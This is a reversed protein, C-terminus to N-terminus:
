VQEFAAAEVMLKGIKDADAIENSMLLVLKTLFLMQKDDPTADLASALADYVQELDHTNIM